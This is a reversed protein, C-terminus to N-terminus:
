DSNASIGNKDKRKSSKEKSERYKVNKLLKDLAKLRKLRNKLFLRTDDDLKEKLEEVNTKSQRALKAIEEEIEKDEVTIKEAKAVAEIALETRITELAASRYTERFELYSINSQKLYKDLSSGAISLRRNFENVMKDIQRELLKTPVDIESKESIFNLVFEKTASEAQEKKQKNLKDKLDKKFEALSDFQSVSKAFEDDLKPLKKAKVEKITVNFKAEQGALYKQEYDDPFVISIELKDDKKAGIIKEEFGPLFHQSGVEFVYDSGSGDKFPKGKIFGQYDIQVFDGKKIARNGVPELRSFKNRLVEIKDNLEKATVRTSQKPVEITSYDPLKVEPKVQVKANFIFTKGEELQIIDIDPEAVPEIGTSEVAKPYFQPIIDQAAQNLVQDKGIMQDIIVKPAKGKRFGPISVKQSILKYAKDVFTTINEPPIEVKLIVTSKEEKLPEVNTKLKIFLGM